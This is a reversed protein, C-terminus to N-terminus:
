SLLPKSLICQLIHQCVMATIKKIPNVAFNKQCLRAIIVPHIAFNDSLRITNANQRSLPQICQCMQFQVSKYHLWLVSPQFKNSKRLLAIDLVTQKIILCCQCYRSIIRWFIFTICECRLKLKIPYTPFNMKEVIFISNSYIFCLFLFFATYGIQHM